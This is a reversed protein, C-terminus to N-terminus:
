TGTIRSWLQEAGGTALMGGLRRAWYRDNGFDSRWRWLRQSFWHLRHERTLGIAGHLQHAISTAATVARNARLKASAVAVDVNLGCDMALCAANVACGVAAVEEALLALQHQVVQFSSLPRGFQERQRVHDISLTLAAELAGAMQAARMLAASGRLADVAGGHPLLDLPLAGHFTLSGRPEGAAGESATCEGDRRPDLLALHHQDGEEVAVLLLGASAWAVGPLTGSLTGLAADLRLRSDVALAIPSEGPPDMGAQALWRRGLLTEAVPLAIAHRGCAQLVVAADQWDGAFGGQAEALFLQCIGLDSVQQWHAVDFGGPGTKVAAAAFERFLGDVTEKLMCRQDSM